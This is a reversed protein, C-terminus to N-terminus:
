AHDSPDESGLPLSASSFGAMGASAIWLEQAKAEDRSELSSPTEELVHFYRGSVGELAPDLVLRAMAAGSLEPAYFRGGFPRLLAKLLGSKWLAGSRLRRDLEYAFFLNCLKSTAYRRLGSMRPAGPREPWALSLAARYIPANLRGDAGAPDHTGSSVAVIRANADLRDLLLNALLFHGLHNVAFMTEFGDRTYAIGRFSQTGANCAIAHLPPRSGRDYASPWTRSAPM